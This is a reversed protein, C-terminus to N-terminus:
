PAAAVASRIMASLRAEGEALEHAVFQGQPDTVGSVSGETASTEGPHDGRRTGLSTQASVRVGAVYPSDAPTLVIELKGVPRLRVTRLAPGNGSADMDAQQEGFGPAVVKIQRLGKLAVAPFRAIGEQDTKTALAARFDDPPLDYANNPAHM